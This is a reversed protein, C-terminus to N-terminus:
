LNRRNESYLIEKLYEGYQGNLQSEIDFVDDGEPLRIISLKDNIRNGSVSELYSSLERVKERSIDDKGAPVFIRDCIEFLETSLSLSMPLDLVPIECRTGTTLIKVVAAIDEASVSMLDEATEFPAMMELGMFPYIYKGLSVGDLSGQRLLYVADSLSCAPNLEELGKLGPFEELNLYVAKKRASVIRAIMLSAITRAPSPVPSFIGIVSTPRLNVDTTNVSAAGSLERLVDCMLEGAPQYKLIGGEAGDSLRLIKMGFLCRETEDNLLVEDCVVAEIDCNRKNRFALFDDIGVFPVATYLFHASKNLYDSFRLNFKKEPSIVALIKKM